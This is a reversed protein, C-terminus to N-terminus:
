PIINCQVVYRLSYFHGYCAQDSIKTLPVHFAESWSFNNPSTANPAGWRYSNNLLGCTSKNEFPSDFLKIQERRMVNLLEPSIGHNVVQFFGWESSAQVIKAMCKARKCEDESNLDIMDIIPMSQDCVKVKNCIQFTTKTCSQGVIRKYDRALPPNILEAVM